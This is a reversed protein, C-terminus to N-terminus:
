VSVWFLMHVNEFKAFLFDVPAVTEVLDAGEADVGVRGCLKGGIGEAGVDLSKETIVLGLRALYADGSAEHALTDHALGGKGLEFVGLAADLDIYGAVIDARALIFVEVVGEELAEDVEAVEDADLAEDEACLSALYGDM